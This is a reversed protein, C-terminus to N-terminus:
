GAAEALQKIGAVTAEMNPRWMALRMEVIAEEAEPKRAIMPTLGSPGPGMRGWHTLLLSGELEEIEYRWAAAPADVDGVLWGFRVGEELEVVTCTVDWSGLRDNQNHGRFRAGLGPGEAGDLWEAGRFEDSFRAPLAIDTVLSWVLDRSADVEISASAEPGDQYRM